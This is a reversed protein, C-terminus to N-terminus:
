LQSAVCYYAITLDSFQINNTYLCFTHQNFWFKSMMHREESLNNKEKNPAGNVRVNSQFCKLLSFRPCLNYFVINIESLHACVCLCGFVCECMHSYWLNQILHATIKSQTSCCSQSVAQDVSVNLKLHFMVNRVM